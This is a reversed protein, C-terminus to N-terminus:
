KRKTPDKFKRAKAQEPIYKRLVAERKRTTEKTSKGEVANLENSVHNGFVSIASDFCFARWGDAELLESPRCGWTKALGYMRWM